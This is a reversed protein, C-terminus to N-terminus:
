KGNSNKFAQSIQGVMDPELQLNLNGTPFPITVGTADFAAQISTHVRDIMPRTDAYSEIWWRVRFIM